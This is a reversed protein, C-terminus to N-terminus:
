QIGAIISLPLCWSNPALQEPIQGVISYQHGVAIQGGGTYIHGRDSVTEGDPRPTPTVDVVLLYHSRSSPVPLIEGVALRQLELVREREEISDGYCNAISVQYVSGHSRRFQENLSLEVVSRAHENSSLADLLEITSDSAGSFLGYLQTRFSVLKIQAEEVGNIQINM